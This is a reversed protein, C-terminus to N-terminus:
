ESRVLCVIYTYRLLSACDCLWQQLPFAILIVYETHSRTDTVKTVWCSFRKLRITMQSRDPQGFSKCMKEYVVYNPPFIVSNLFTVIKHVIKTQSM